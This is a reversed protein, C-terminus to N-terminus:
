PPPSRGLARARRPRDTCSASRADRWRPRHRRPCEWGYSRRHREPELGGRACGTALGDPRRFHRGGGPLSGATLPHVLVAGPRLVDPASGHWGLGGDVDSEVAGRATDLRAGCSRREETLIAVDDGHFHVTRRPVQVPDNRRPRTNFGDRESGLVPQVDQAVAGGVDHGLRDLIQEGVDIEADAGEDGVAEVVVEAADVSDRGLQQAIDLLAHLADDLLALPKTRRSM